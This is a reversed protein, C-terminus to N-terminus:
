VSCRVSSRENFRRLHAANTRSRTRFLRFNFRLNYLPRGKFFNRFVNLVFTVYIFCRTQVEKEFRKLDELSFAPMEPIEPIEDPESFEESIVQQPVVAPEPETVITVNEAVEDITKEFHRNKKSYNKLKKDGIDGIDAVQASLEPMEDDSDGGNQSVKSGMFEPKPLIKRYKKTVNAIKELQPESKPLIEIKKEKITKEADSDFDVVRQEGDVGVVMFVEQDDTNKDNQQQKRLSRRTPENSAGDASLRSIKAPPTRLLPPSPSTLIRKRETKNEAGNPTSSHKKCVGLDKKKFFHIFLRRWSPRAFDEQLINKREESNKISYDACCNSFTQM